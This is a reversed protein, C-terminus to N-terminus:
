QLLFVAKHTLHKLSVEPLPESPPKSLAELVIGPDLQPLISTLTPGKSNWLSLMDSIIRDQVVAARGTRGFFSALSSRYGRVTHPSLDDTDFLSLPFHCKLLQPVLSWVKTYKCFCLVSFCFFVFSPMFSQFFFLLASSFHVTPCLGVANMFPLGINLIDTAFCVSFALMACSFSSFSCISFSLHLLICAVLGSSQM